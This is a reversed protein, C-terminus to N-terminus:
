ISINRFSILLFHGLTNGLHKRLDSLARGIQTKVTNVSINLEEAVERYKMGEYCALKFIRKRQEPLKNVAENIIKNREIMSIREEQSGESLMGEEISETTIQNRSVHNICSNHVSQYLYPRIKQISLEEKKNWLSTFFDQVIDEAVETSKVIKTAYLMLQPYYERFLAEFSKKDKINFSM